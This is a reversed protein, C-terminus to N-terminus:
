AGPQVGEVHRRRYYYYFAGVGAGLVGLVILTGKVFAETRREEVSPVTWFMFRESSKTWEGDKLKARVRINHQRRKNLGQLRASFTGDPNQIIPVNAIPQWESEVDTTTATGSFLVRVELRYSDVNGEPPPAWTLVASKSSIGTISKARPGEKGVEGVGGVLAKTLDRMTLRDANSLRESEDFTVVPQRFPEDGFARFPSAAQAVDPTRAVNEVERVNVIKARLEQSECRFAVDLDGDDYTVSVPVKIVQGPELTFTHGSDVAGRTRDRNLIEWQVTALRGGSNTVRFDAVAAPRERSTRVTQKADGVFGIRAPAIDSSVDITEKQVDFNVSVKASIAGTMKGPVRVEFSAWDWPPVSLEAPVIMPADTEAAIQLVIPSEGMNRVGIRSSRTGDTGSPALVAATQDLTFLPLAEGIATLEGLANKLIHVERRYSGRVTPRYTVEFTRKEGARLRYEADAKLSLDKPLLIEGELIGGGGNRITFFASRTTGLPTAGFDLLKPEVELRPPPDFIQIAVTAAVSVPSGASRVAYTFLDAAGDGLHRYEIQYEGIGKGGTEPTLTGYKPLERIIFELEQGPKGITRLPIMGSTGRQIKVKISRPTPPREGISDEAVMRTGAVGSFIVAGVVFGLYIRCRFV